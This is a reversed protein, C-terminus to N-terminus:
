FRDLVAQVDPERDLDIYTFPHANRTLFEKVGLTKACHASGIVIADSIGRAILEVRRLIFARMLLEGIEADTQVLALLQDRTLEIAEGAASAVTRVLARRGALLSVEGTFQGPNQVAVIDDGTPTHRVSQIQGSLVLLFRSAPDGVEFLVEGQTIPRTRG